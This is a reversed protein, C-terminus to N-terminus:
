LFHTFRPSLFVISALPIQRHCPCKGNAEGNPYAFLNTRQQNHQHKSSPRRPPPVNLLQLQQHHALTAAQENDFIFASAPLPSSISLPTLNHAAHPHLQPPGLRGHMLGPAGHHPTEKSGQAGM